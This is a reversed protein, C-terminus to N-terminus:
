QNPSIKTHHYPCYGFQETFKIEEKKELKINKVIKGNKILSRYYIGTTEDYLSVTGDVIGLQTEKGSERINIYVKRKITEATLHFSFLILPVILFKKM